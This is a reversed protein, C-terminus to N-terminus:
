GSQHRVTPPSYTSEVLKMERNQDTFHYGVCRVTSSNTIYQCTVTLGRPLATASRNHLWCYTFSVSSATSLIFKIFHLIILHSVILEFM